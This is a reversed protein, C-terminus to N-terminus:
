KVGNAIRHYVYSFATPHSWLKSQGAREAEEQIHGDSADAVASVLLPIGAGLQLLPYTAFNDRSTPSIV